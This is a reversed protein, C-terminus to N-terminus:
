DKAVGRANQVAAVRATRLSAAAEPNLKKKKSKDTGGVNKPKVEVSPRNLAGRIEDSAFGPIRINHNRELHLQIDRPEVQDSGRHKAIRCAFHMVSDIFEDARALLYSEMEADITVRPDLEAVLDQITRKGAVGVGLPEGSAPGAKKAVASGGAGAGDEKEETEAEGIGLGLAEDGAGFRLLQSPTGLIPGGALGQSLTPRAGLRFSGFTKLNKSVPWSQPGPNTVNLASPAVTTSSSPSTTPNLTTPTTVPSAGGSQTVNIQAMSPDPMPRASQPTSATPSENAPAMVPTQATPQGQGSTSPAMQPAQSAPQAPQSLMPQQQTPPQQLPRPPQPQALIQAPTQAQTQPQLQPQPQGPPQLTPPQQPQLLSPVPQPPQQNQTQTGPQQTGGSPGTVPTAVRSVQGAMAAQAQGQSAQQQQQWKLLLARTMNMIHQQDDARGQQAAWTRARQLAGAKIAHPVAAFQQGLPLQAALGNRQQVNPGGNGQQQGQQGQPGVGNMQMGVASQGFGNAPHMMTNGNAQIGSIGNGQLQNQTM